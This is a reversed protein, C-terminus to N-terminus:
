VARGDLPDELPNLFLFSSLAMPAPALSEGDSPRLIGIVDRDIVGALGLERSASADRERGFRRRGHEGALRELAHQAPQARLRYPFQSVM